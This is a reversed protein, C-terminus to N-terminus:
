HVLKECVGCEPEENRIRHDKKYQVYIRETESM